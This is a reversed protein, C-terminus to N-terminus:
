GNSEETQVRISEKHLLVCIKEVFKTDMNLNKGWDARSELIEMWRQLQFVTMNNTKKYAGISECVDLRKKLLHFLDEDIADITNRLLDLKSQVETNDTTANKHVLKEILGNLDQPTLQQQADSLAVDPNRHSEIILGDYDLDLAKQSVAQLTERRGCIHSPDCIMPINPFVTKLQLPIDWHPKNRYQAKETTYFGRHIAIIKQIGAKQIREIAGIWLQLDPHIPNKIMIPVNSGQVANAIDQVSFPNVTTRAGIWLIDVGAKMAAEVHAPTAVEVTTLLGTLQKVEQLWELAVNGAGEFANPRTRPKWVGARFVSVKNLAAIQQATEIVQERTEAGCPGAIIFTEQKKPLGLIDEITNLTTVL